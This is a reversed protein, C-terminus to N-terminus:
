TWDVASRFPRISKSFAFGMGRGIARVRGVKAGVVESLTLVGPKTRPERPVPSLIKSADVPM